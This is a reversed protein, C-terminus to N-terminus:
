RTSIAITALPRPSPVLLLCGAGAGFPLRLELAEDPDDAGLVVLRVAPLVLAGRDRLVPLKLVVYVVNLVLRRVLKRLM